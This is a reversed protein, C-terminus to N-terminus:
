AKEGDPLRGHAHLARSARIKDLAWGSVHRAVLVTCFLFFPFAQMTLRYQETLGRDYVFAVPFVLAFFGLPLWRYGPLLLALFLGLIGLLKLIQDMWGLNLGLIAAVPKHYGIVDMHSAIKYLGRLTGAIVERPTHLKFLYEKYTLRPGTYADREVEERSLFGPRGAFEM